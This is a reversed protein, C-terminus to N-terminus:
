RTSIVPSAALGFVVIPRPSGYGLIITPHVQELGYLNLKFESMNQALQILNGEM